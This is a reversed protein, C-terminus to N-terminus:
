FVFTPPTISVLLTKKLIKYFKSALTVNNFKLFDVDFGGANVQSKLKTIKKQEAGQQEFVQMEKIVLYQGHYKLVQVHTLLQIFSLFFYYWIQFYRKQCKTNQIKKLSPSTIGIYNNAMTKVKKEFM